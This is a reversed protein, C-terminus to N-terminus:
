QLQNMESLYRRYLDEVPIWGDYPVTFDFSGCEELKGDIYSFRPMEAIVPTDNNVATQLMGELYSKITFERILDLKVFRKSSRM